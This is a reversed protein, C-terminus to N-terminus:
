SGIPQNKQIYKDNRKLEALWEEYYAKGSESLAPMNNWFRINSWFVYGRMYPHRKESSM